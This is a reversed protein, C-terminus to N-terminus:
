HPEQRVWDLTKPKAPLEFHSAPIPGFDVSQLEGAIGLIPTGKKLIALMDAFPATGTPSMIEAAMEFQGEMAVGLPALAPDSSMVLVPRASLSGTDDQMYYATGTRGNVTMTGKEVFKPPHPNQVAARLHPDLKAMQESTVVRIDEMRMVTIGARDARVFYGEGNSLMFFQGPRDADGRWSGDSSIEFTITHPAVGGADFKATIDAMASTPASALLVFWLRLQM